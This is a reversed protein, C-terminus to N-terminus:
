WSSRIRCRTSFASWWPPPIDSRASSSPCDWSRRARRWWPGPPKRSSRCATNSFTLARGCTTTSRRGRTWRCKGAARCCSKAALDFLRHMHYRHYTVIDLDFIQYSIGTPKLANAVYGLGNPMLALNRAPCDLLLLDLGQEFRIDPLDLPYINRAIPVWARTPVQEPMLEALVTADIVRLEGPLRYPAAFYDQARTATVFVTEVASPIHRRDVVPIGHSDIPDSGDHIIAIAHERLGPHQRLLAAFLPGTGYFALGPQLALYDALAQLCQRDQVDGDFRFCRYPSFAVRQGKVKVTNEGARLTLAVGASM